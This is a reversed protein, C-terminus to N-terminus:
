SQKEGGVFTAVGLHSGVYVQVDEEDPASLRGLLVPLIGLDRQGLGDVGRRDLATALSFTLKCRM